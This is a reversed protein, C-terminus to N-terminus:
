LANRRRGNQGGTPDDVGMGNGEAEDVNAYCGFAISSVTTACTKSM